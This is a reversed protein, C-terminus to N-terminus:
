SNENKQHIKEIYNMTKNLAAKKRIVQINKQFISENKKCVLYTM